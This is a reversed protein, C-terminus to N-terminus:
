HTLSPRRPASLTGPLAKRKGKRPREKKKSKERGPPKEEISNRTKSALVQSYLDKSPAAELGPRERKRLQSEKKGWTARSADPLISDGGKQGKPIKRHNRELSVV